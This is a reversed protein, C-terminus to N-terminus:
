AISTEITARLHMLFRARVTERLQRAMTAETVTPIAVHTIRHENPQADTGEPCDSRSAAVFAAGPRILPMSDRCLIDATAAGLMQDSIIGAAQPKTM